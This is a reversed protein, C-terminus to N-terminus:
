EPSFVFAANDDLLLEENLVRLVLEVYIACRHPMNWTVTEPPRPDPIPKNEFLSLQEYSPDM